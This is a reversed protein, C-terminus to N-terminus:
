IGKYFSEINEKVFEFNELYTGSVEVVKDLLGFSELLELLKKYNSMREDMSSQKMYRVGDDIFKGHPKILIIRDWRVDHELCRAFAELHEYESMTLNIDPDNAYAWAYMLTTLNSSDHITIGRNGSYHIATNIAAHQGILFQKFDVYTLDVDTINKDVMYQRAYEETYSLGYYRHIDKVLTSKGESATGIILINKTLYPRYTPVIYDWYELPNKRIKTGSIDITKPVLVCPYGINKGIKKQYSAEAVYYKYCTIMDNMKKRLEAVFPFMQTYVANHWVKWNSDCMSEDIGLETDNVKLVVIQEDGKFFEKVAKYREDLNMSIEEARPEDKYGCVVVFCIDNEKKAKMICDLHGRHMPCYGGFTIGVNM